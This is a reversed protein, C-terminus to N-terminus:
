AKAQTIENYMAKRELIPISLWSIVEKKTWPKRGGYALKKDFNPFKINENLTDHYLNNVNPTGDAHVHGLYSAIEKMGWMEQVENAKIYRVGDVEISDTLIKITM